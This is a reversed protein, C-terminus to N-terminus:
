LELFNDLLPNADRRAPHPLLLAYYLTGIEKINCIETSSELSSGVSKYFRFSQISKHDIYRILGFYNEFAIIEKCSQRKKLLFTMTRRSPLRVCDEAHASEVTVPM